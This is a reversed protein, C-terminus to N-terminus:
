RGCALNRPAGDRFAGGRQPMRAEPALAVHSGPQRNVAAGPHIQIESDPLATVRARHHAEVRAGAHAVATANRMAVTATGTAPIALTVRTPILDTAIYAETAWHNVHEVAWDLTAQGRVPAVVPQGRHLMVDGADVGLAPFLDDDFDLERGTDEMWAAVYAPYQARANSPSDALLDVPPLDTRDLPRVHWARVEGSHEAALEADAAMQANFETDGPLDAILGYLRSPGDSEAWLRQRETYTAFYESDTDGPKVALFEALAEVTRDTDIAHLPSPRFDAAAFIVTGRDTLVYGLAGADRQSEAGPEFLELRLGEAEVARLLEGDVRIRAATEILHQDQVSMVTHAVTACGVMRGGDVVVWRTAGFSLTEAEVALAATVQELLATQARDERGAVAVAALLPSEEARQHYPTSVNWAVDPAIRAAATQWARQYAFDLQEAADALDQTVEEAGLNRAVTALPGDDPGFGRYAVRPDLVVTVVDNEAAQDINISM